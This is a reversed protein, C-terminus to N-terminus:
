GNERHFTAKKAPNGTSGTPKALVQALQRGVVLRLGGGDLGRGAALGRLLPALSPHKLM